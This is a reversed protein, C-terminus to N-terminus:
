QIARGEGGDWVELIGVDWGGAFARAGEPLRANSKQLLTTFARVVSAPLRVEEVASNPADLLATAEDRPPSPRFLLKGAPLPQLPSSDTSTHAAPSSTPRCSLSSFSVTLSPAFLWVYIGVEADTDSESKADAPPPPPRIIFKSVGLASSQAHLQPLLFHPLPPSTPALQITPSSTATTLPASLSLSWKYLQYGAPTSTGILAACSTCALSLSSPNTELGSCDESDLLFYTLDVKGVGKQAMMRTNAGYGKTTNDGGEEDGKEGVPVDPKHCHWFEMMEAWNESPLDRWTTVRRPSLIVQGCRRCSFSSTNALAGASWPAPLSPAARQQSPTAALPIRWSLQALSPHPQTATYTPAITGPLQLSATAGNHVLTLLARDGSLSVRTTGDSPTPLAALVSIQRINPLLEAYILPPSSPMM